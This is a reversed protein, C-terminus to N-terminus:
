AVGVEEGGLEVARFPAPPGRGGGGWWPLGAELMLESGDACSSLFASGVASTQVATAPHPSSWNSPSVWPSPTPSPGPCGSM